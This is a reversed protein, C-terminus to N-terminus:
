YKRIGQSSGVDDDEKTEYVYLDPIGCNMKKGALSDDTIRYTNEMKDMNLKREYYLGDDELDTISLTFGNIYVIKVPNIKSKPGKTVDSFNIRKGNRTTYYMIGEYVPCDRQESGVFEIGKYKISDVYTWRIDFQRSNNIDGETIAKIQIIRDLFRMANEDGIQLKGKALVTEKRSFLSGTTKVIEYPYRGIPLNPKECVLDSDLDLNYSFTENAFIRLTMKGDKNGVFGNGHNWYLSDERYDFEIRALFHEKLAIKAIDYKHSYGGKKFYARVVLEDEEKEGLSYFTNGLTFIGTREEVIKKGMLYLSAKVDAPLKVHLRKAPLIEDQYVETGENYITGNEDSVVIRPVKIELYGGDMNCQVIEDGQRVNMRKKGDETEVIVYADDYDKETYYFPKNFSYSLSPKWKYLKRDRVGKNGLYGLMVDYIGDKTEVPPYRLYVASADYDIMGDEHELIRDNVKIVYPDLDTKRRAMLTLYCDNKLVEYQKGALVFSVDKLTDPTILEVSNDTNLGSKDFCLLVGDMYVNFGDQLQVHSIVFNGEYVDNISAHSFELNRTLPYAFVYNGCECGDVDVEKGDQFCLIERYLTNQSDYVVDGDCRIMIRIDFLREYPLSFSAIEIDQGEMTKGLENGYYAMRQIDVKRNGRYVDMLISSVDASQLRVDSISVLVEGRESLVYRPRIKDYDGVVSRGSQQLRNERLLLAQVTKKRMWEDCLIDIYMKPPQEQHHVKHDIRSLIQHILKFAYGPREYVIKRIGAQVKYVKSNIEVDLDRADSFSSMKNRLSVVMQRIVPDDEAYTWELNVRYFDFLLDIFNMWSNRPACAHILVSIMYQNIGKGTNVFLRNNRTLANKICDTVIQRIKNNNERYGYQSCIFSWFTSEEHAFERAFFITALTVTMEEFIKFQVSSNSLKKDVLDKAKRVVQEEKGKDVLCNGLLPNLKYMQVIWETKENVEFVRMDEEVHDLSDFLEKDLASKQNVLMTIFQGIDQAMVYPVPVIKGELYLGDFCEYVQDDVQDFWKQLSRDMVMGLVDNLPYVRLDNEKRVKVTVYDSDQRYVLHNSELAEMLKIIGIDQYGEQKM